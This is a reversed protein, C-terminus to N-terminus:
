LFSARSKWESVEKMLRENEASGKIAFRLWRGRLGPFNMTHRPVIGRELLYLFFPLQDDLQPDKLLYFNTSSPSFLFGYEQYFAFLKTKEKQILNKTEQIFTESELLWEGTKLALANISWHPQFASVNAIIESSGILYGLRLGPIAFMKTMSRIILLNSYKQIYPVIREYETVFDYFAEDIILLCDNIKCKNLLPLFLAPPYYIGTPNNPNCLFVADASELKEELGKEWEWSGSSLSLYEVECGNVRCAEEYESFAPQIILVKKGSLMRGILSIIEAGGNGILIQEESLGELDAIKRKITTGRSDPYESVLELLMPWNEALSSPPGLPNINASFDIIQSPIQRNLAEYMLHPNAGHEPWKM